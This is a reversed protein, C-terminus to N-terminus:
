ESTIPKVLDIGRNFTILFASEGGWPGIPWAWNARLYMAPDPLGPRYLISFGAEGKWANQDPWTSEASGPGGYPDAGWVAGLGGFGGLQFGAAPNHPIHLVTLMDPAEIADLRLVSMHSGAYGRGPATKLSTAGGLFFAAQPVLQGTLRGYSAQPVVALWRGVSLDAGAAVRLRRYELDSGIASSSTTYTAEATVPLRPARAGLEYELEHNRGRTAPFNDHIRLPIHFLNWGATTELPQELADRFRAAGRWRSHSAELQAEFGDRRLYDQRDNGNLFARMQTLAREGAERDLSMTARGAIVRGVWATNALRVRKAYWGGGVWDNPGNIYGLRGAVEGWGSLRGYSASAGFRGGDVRNFGLWPTISRFNRQPPAGPHALGYVLASDLGTTDPHQAAIGFYADTSDSMTGLFRHLSSDAPAQAGAPAVFVALAAVMAPVALAALSSTARGTM